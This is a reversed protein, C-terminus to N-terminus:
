VDEFELDDEDSDDGDAATPTPTPEPKPEELKVKKVSKGDSGTPSNGGSDAERKLSSQRLPSPVAPTTSVGLNGSNPIPTTGVSNPETAVDEFEDEEESSAAADEEAKRREEEAAQEQLRAFYADDEEDAKADGKAAVKVGAATSLGSDYQQKVVDGTVSSNTIWEPLENQKAIHEKRLREAEQEEETPGSSDSLKISIQTPGVDALGKVATPRLMHDVGISAQTQHTHSRKVPQHKEFAIDFTYEPVKVKDIEILLDTIFKLQLNMRTSQQHGGSNREPAFELVSNCTHCHFGKESARGDLIEMQTFEAKCGVRNCFYEKREDVPITKGQM